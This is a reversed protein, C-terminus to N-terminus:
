RREVYMYGTDATFGDDGLPHVPTPALIMCGIASLLNGKYGSHGFRFYKVADYLLDVPEFAEGHASFLVLSVPRGQPTCCLKRGFDLLLFRCRREDSTIPVGSVTLITGYEDMRTPYHGDCREVWAKNLHFLRTRFLVSSGPKTFRLRQATSIHPDGRGSEMEVRWRSTAYNQKILRVFEQVYKAQLPPGPAPFGAPFRAPEGPLSDPHYLIDGTKILDPNPVDRYNGDVVERFKGIHEFDGYIAMSYKSLWDGERVNISRDRNVTVEYGGGSFTHPLFQLSM